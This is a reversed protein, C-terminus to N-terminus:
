GGADVLDDVILWEEEKEEGQLKDRHHSLKDQSWRSVEIIVVTLTESSDTSQRKATGM